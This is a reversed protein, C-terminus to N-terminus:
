GRVVGLAMGALVAVLRDGVGGPEGVATPAGLAAPGAPPPCVSRRVRLWAALGRHQVVAVGMRWGSVDGDLV